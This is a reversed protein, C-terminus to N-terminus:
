NDDTEATQKARFFQRGWERMVSTRYDPNQWKFLDAALQGYDCPIEASELQSVLSRLHM